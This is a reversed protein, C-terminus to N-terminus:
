KHIRVEDRVFFDLEVRVQDKAEGLLVSLDLFSRSTFCIVSHAIPTDELHQRKLLVVLRLDFFHAPRPSVLRIQVVYSVVRVLSVPHMAGAGDKVGNIFSQALSGESITFLDPNAM